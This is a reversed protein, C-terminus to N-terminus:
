GAVSAKFRYRRILAGERTHQTVRFAASSREIDVDSTTVRIPLGGATEYVEAYGDQEVTVYRAGGIPEVWAFGLPEGARTACAGVNLRPDRLRGKSLQGFAVGCARRGEERPGDSNDCGYLGRGSGNRFTVSEGSVGVRSVIPGSLRDGIARNVCAEIASGVAIEGIGSTAVSTLVAPSAVGDLDVSLEPARAGSMLTTPAGSDNAACGVMMTLGVVIVAVAVVFRCWATTEHM